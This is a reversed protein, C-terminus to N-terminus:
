QVQTASRVDTRIFDNGKFLLPENRHKALAYAFCDGFNLGAPDHGKGYRRFADFALDALETSVAVIEVGAETVLKRLVVLGPEGMRSFVVMRAELWTAASIAATRANSLRELLMRREPEKRIIAVLASTDVVM